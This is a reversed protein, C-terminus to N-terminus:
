RLDPTVDFLRRHEQLAYRDTMGAVFDCIHIARDQLDNTQLLAQWDSPLSEASSSYAQFLDVVIDEAHGMVQMVWKDRYVTAFLFERLEKLALFLSSSFQIYSRKARRVDDRNGLKAEFILKQAESTIDAVMATILRRNLEYILRGKDLSEFQPSFDEKIEELLQATLPVEKLDELDILGARLGDDIDHNCYAIDDAIAAVQAELLAFQDLRLDRIKNIELIYSHVAQLKAGGRALDGVLPGNHKVIGELCEYSLNLGDFQPYKHELSTVHKLSQANHDFGGFEAMVRNLAREGAHGFPSHGLDHALAIAETLDEDLHLMRAISRAIQAVELTHTLRTRYHDGEHYIFVQTKHTLRRFATSHIIRDRDRQFPSRMPCDGEDFFRGESPGQNAAFPMYESKLQWAQLEQSGEEHCEGKATMEVYGAEIRDRSM